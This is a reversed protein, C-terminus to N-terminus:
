HGPSARPTTNLTPQISNIKKKKKICGLLLSFRSFFGVERLVVFFFYFKIKKSVRIWMRIKNSKIKDNYETILFIQKKFIKSGSYDLLFDFFFLGWSCRSIYLLMCTSLLIEKEKKREEIAVANKSTFFLFLYYM